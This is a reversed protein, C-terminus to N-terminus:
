LSDVINALKEKFSEKTFCLKNSHFSMTSITDIMIRDYEPNENGQCNIIFETVKGTFPKGEHMLYVQKGRIDELTIYREDKAIQIALDERKQDQRDLAAMIEIHFNDNANETVVPIVEEKYYDGNEISELIEEAFITWPMKNGANLQLLRKLSENEIHDNSCPMSETVKRAYLIGDISQYITKPFVSNIGITIILGSLREILEDEEQELHSETHEVIENAFDQTKKWTSKLSEVAVGTGISLFYWADMEDEFYNGTSLLAGVKTKLARTPEVHKDVIVYIIIDEAVSTNIINVAASPIGVKWRKNYGIGYVNFTNVADPIKALVTWTGRKNKSLVGAHRLYGCYLRTVYNPDRYGRKWPTYNENVSNYLNHVTFTSGIEQSNIYNCVQDFLSNHKRM